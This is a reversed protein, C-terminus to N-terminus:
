TFCLSFFCLARERQSFPLRYKHVSVLSLDSIFGSLNEVQALSLWLVVFGDDKLYPRALPIFRDPPAVARGTIFRYKSSSDIANPVRGRLVKISKIGISRIVERVFINTKEKPEILTVALEPRAIKLVLGPLGPGTGIDLLDGNSIFKAAFLSDLVHFEIIFSPENSSLFHFHKNWKQLLLTYNALNLIISPPLDIGIKEIGMSLSLSIDKSLDRDM